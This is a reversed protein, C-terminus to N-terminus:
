NFDGCIVSCCPADTIAAAGAVADIVTDRARDDAGAPAHVAHLMIPLGATRIKVQVPRRFQEDLAPLKSVGLFEGRNSMGRRVLVAYREKSQPPRGTEESLHVAFRARF